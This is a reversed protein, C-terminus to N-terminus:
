SSIISVERRMKVAEDIMDYVLKESDDRNLPISLTQTCYTEIQYRRPIRDHDLIWAVLSRADSDGMTYHGEALLRAALRSKLDSGAM